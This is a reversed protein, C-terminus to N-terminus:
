PTVFVCLLVCRRGAVLRAMGNDRVAVLAIDLEMEGM